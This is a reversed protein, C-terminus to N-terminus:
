VGNTYMQGGMAKDFAVLEKLGCVEFLGKPSGGKELPLQEGTEKLTNVAERVAQNVAKLALGPFIIIKFGLEKAEAVGLDPSAGGQVANFLVPTPALDKCVQAAEEKTTIGELFAADAGVAIASKLRSVAADYGLSQLADTRAIIVIDGPTNDRTAAAARIRSIYEEESVLAKNLLHGCRKNVVQDELHLGAVGAAMYQAVTRGVM